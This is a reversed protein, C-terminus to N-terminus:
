KKEICAKAASSSIFSSGMYPWPAYNNRILLVAGAWNVFFREKKDILM